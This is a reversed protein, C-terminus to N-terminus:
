GPHVERLAGIVLRVSHGDRLVTFLTHTCSRCRVIAADDDMEVVAEAFVAVAGCGRCTGVFMTPDGAFVESLLGAVANGDVVSPEDHESM